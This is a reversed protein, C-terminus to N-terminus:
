IVKFMNIKVYDCCFVGGKVGNNNMNMNTLDIFDNENIEIPFASTQSDDVASRIWMMAHMKNTKKLNEYRDIIISAVLYWKVSGLKFKHSGDISGTNDDAFEVLWIKREECYDDVDKELNPYKELWNKITCGRCM